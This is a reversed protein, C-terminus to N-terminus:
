QTKEGRSPMARHVILLAIRTICALAFAHFFIDIILLWILLEVM